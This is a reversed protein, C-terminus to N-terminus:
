QSNNELNPSLPNQVSNSDVTTQTKETNIPLNDRYSLLKPNINFELDFDINDNKNRILNSFVVNKFLHGKETNFMDAQLAISRYDRAVGKILISFNNNEDKQLFKTYQISPITIEGLLTLTPSLVIHGNLIQQAISTRKDYLKLEDITGKEFTDRISSLSTALSDRRNILYSKYLFMGLSGIISIILLFTTIIGFLSKSERKSSTSIIPKKPIFSTQFSNEM